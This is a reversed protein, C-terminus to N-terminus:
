SSRVRQTLSAVLANAVPRDEPLGWQWTLAKGTSSQIVHWNGFQPRWVAFDTRGDGDFDAPQPIDDALGWQETRSVGNSSQLVYWTGSSPRWVAFDMRGDGDYNGPVPIDGPLGWQQTRQSGTTSQIVFWTGTSPRWVALDTRSDGDYDGPVPLDGPLGWQQTRLTDTTSQLVYWTGNSPRWVAFDTKGDGDYDSTVAIDNPLGLQQTRSGGTSSQIVYWTGNSPRWVAVDTRGDGDFDGNVPVDTPLGWQQTTANGNSSNTVYWTGTSPRWVCRDAKLDGDFDAQLASVDDNRITGLGEGDSITAGTANSLRLFFTENPEIATDPRIPVWVLASRQQPTLTVQGNVATYDEGTRATGNATTYTFTVPAFTASNSSATVTFTAYVQSGGPNGEAVRVDSVALTPLPTGVPDQLVRVWESGQILGSASAFIQVARTPEARNDDMAAIPVQISAVGAPITVTGPLKIETSDSTTLTVTLPLALSVGARVITLSSANAGGSERFKDQPVYLTLRPQGGALWGANAAAPNAPIFSPNLQPNTAISHADVGVAKWRALDWLGGLQGYEGGNAGFINWRPVAAPNFYINDDFNLNQPTVVRQYDADPGYTSIRIIGNNVNYDSEDDVVINNRFRMINSSPFLGNTEQVNIAGSGVFTNHELRHGKVATVNAGGEIYYPAGNVILNHHMFTNPTQSGIASFFVDRVINDHFEFTANPIESAHKVWIGEGTERGDARPTNFVKNHDVEVRDSGDGFIVINRSNARQPEGGMEARAHDYNDHLLNHHIRLGVTDVTYIGAINNDQKGDIDHIYNNAIEVNSSESIRIGPGYTGTVELGLIKVHSSQGVYIASNAAGSERAKIIPHEGPFAQITIPATATGPRQFIVFAAPEADRPRETLLNSWNHVGDRLYVTDGAALPRYNPTGWSLNRPTQFPQAVTGPNSDSGRIPDISFVAMLAREELSEFSLRAQRPKRRAARRTSKGTRMKWHDVLQSLPM